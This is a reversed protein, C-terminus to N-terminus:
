LSPPTTLQIRWVLQVLLLERVLYQELLVFCANQPDQQPLTIAMAALQVRFLVLLHRSLVLVASVAVARGLPRMHGQEVVYSQM